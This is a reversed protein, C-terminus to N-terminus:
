KVTYVVQITSIYEGVPRDYYIYNEVTGTNITAETVEVVKDIKKGLAVAMLSAKTYADELAQVYLDETVKKTINLIAVAKLNDVGNAKVKLFTRMKEISTTNFEYIIGEKGYNFSEYGFEYPKKTFMTWSIGKEKLQSKYHEEIKSLDTIEDPYYANLNKSISIIAKFTPKTDEYTAKGNVKILTSNAEQSFATTLWICPLLFLYISKM